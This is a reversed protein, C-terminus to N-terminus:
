KPLIATLLSDDISVEKGQKITVFCRLLAEEALNGVARCEMEDSGINDRYYTSAVVRHNYYKLEIKYETMLQWLVDKRLLYNELFETRGTCIDGTILDDTSNAYTFDFSSQECASGQVKLYEFRQKIFDKRTYVRHGLTIAVAICLADGTLYSIQYIM